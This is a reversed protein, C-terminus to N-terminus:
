EVFKKQTYLEVTALIEAITRATGERFLFTNPAYRGHTVQEQIATEIAGRETPADSIHSLVQGAYRSVQRTGINVVPTGLLAAEKLGASSNGVLCSAKKLLTYFHEAPIYKLFHMHTTDHTKQFERIGESLADGGADMNPWFWLAPIGLHQVAFLTEEIQMRAESVETTVPHQMVLIFEKSFDFQPVGISERVVADDVSVSLTVVELEPSGVTFVYEPREGMRVIRGASEENTPFHIHALKTIAHRVSEDITGSVDGGEIHAVPINMYASALAVPLVEFRDGRVLVVDPLLREFVSAICSLEVGSAKAMASPADSELPMPCTADITFGDAVMLPEVLGYKEVLASGTLVIQLEIGQHAKLMELVYKNRAYHIKSTLVACVKRKSAM